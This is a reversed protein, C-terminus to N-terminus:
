VRTYRMHLAQAQPRHHLSPKQRVKGRCQRDCPRVHGQYGDTRHDHRIEFRDFAVRHSEHVVNNLHSSFRAERWDNRLKPKRETNRLPSM